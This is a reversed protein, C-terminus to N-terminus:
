TEVGRPCGRLLTIVGSGDDEMEYRLLLGTNVGDELQICVRKTGCGLGGSTVLIVAANQFTRGMAGNLGPRKGWHPTDSGIMRMQLWMRDRARDPHVETARTM